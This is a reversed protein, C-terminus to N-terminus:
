YVSIKDKIKEYTSNNVVKKTLLEDISTYPRNDIIKASTVEGVGPLEDLQKAAATNINITQFQSGNTQAALVSETNVENAYEGTKPIYLKSGDVVKAALNVYKDVWDRDAVSSLGGAVVLLDQIRADSDLTYVGPKVVAGSIDAKSSTTLIASATSEEIFEVQTKDSTILRLGVVLLILGLAGVILYSRYKELLNDAPKPTEETEM